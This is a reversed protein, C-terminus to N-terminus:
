IKTLKATCTTGSLKYEVEVNSNPDYEFIENTWCDFGAKVYGILIFQIGPQIGLDKLELTKSQALLFDGSEYLKNDNADLILHAVAWLKSKVKIKSIKMIEIKESQVNIKNYM